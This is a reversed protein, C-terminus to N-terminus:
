YYEKNREEAIRKIEEIRDRTSDLTGSSSSTDIGSEELAEKTEENIKIPPGKTYTRMMIYCLVVAIIVAILFGIFSVFGKNHRIYYASEKREM